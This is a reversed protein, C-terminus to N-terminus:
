FSSAQSKLEDQRSLRMIYNKSKWQSWWLSSTSRWLFGWPIQVSKKIIEKSSSAKQEKFVVQFSSGHVPYWEERRYSLIIIGQFSPAKMSWYSGWLLFSLLFTLFENYYLFIRSLYIALVLMSLIITHFHSVFHSSTFESVYSHM